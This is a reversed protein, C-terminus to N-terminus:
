AYTKRWKGHGIYEFGLEEAKVGDGWGGAILIGKTITGTVYKRDYMDVQKSFDMERERDAETKEAM